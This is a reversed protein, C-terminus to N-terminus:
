RKKENGPIQRVGNPHIHPDGGNNFATRGKGKRRTESVSQDEGEGGNRKRKAGQPVEGTEVKGVVHPDVHRKAGERGHKPGRPVHAREEKRAGLLSAGIGRDRGRVSVIRAKGRRSPFPFARPGSRASGSRGGGHNAEVGGKGGVLGEVHGEPM